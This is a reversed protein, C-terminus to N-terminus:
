DAPDFGSARRATAVDFGRRLLLDAAKRRRRVDDLDIAGFRREVLAEATAQWDDEGDQALAQFASAVQDDSLGHSALEARIHVPGYGALARNRALSAAFRGDDQWGEDRMRAVARAADDEAIGRALLKRELERRSHERRVLLALARQEPTAAPRGRRPASM